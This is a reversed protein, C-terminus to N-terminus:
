EQCGRKRALVGESKVPDHTLRPKDKLWDVLAGGHMDEAGLEADLLLLRQFECALAAEARDDRRILATWAGRMHGEHQLLAVPVRDHL